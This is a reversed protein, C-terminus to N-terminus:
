FNNYNNCNKKPKIYVYTTSKRKYRNITTIKIYNKNYSNIINNKNNFKNDNNDIVMYLHNLFINYPINGKKYSHYILNFNDLFDIHKQSGLFKQNSCFYLNM